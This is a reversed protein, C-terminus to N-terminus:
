ATQELQPWTMAPEVSTGAKIADAVARANLVFMALRTPSPRMRTTAWQGACVSCLSGARQNQTKNKLGAHAHLLLQFLLRQTSPTLEDGFFTVGFVWFFCCHLPPPAKPAASKRDGTRSGVVGMTGVDGLTANQRRTRDVTDGVVVVDHGGGWGGGAAEMGM